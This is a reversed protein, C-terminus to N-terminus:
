TAGARPRTAKTAATRRIERAPPAARPAGFARKVFTRRAMGTGKTADSGAAPPAATKDTAAHTTGSCMARDAHAAITVWTPAHDSPSPQDRVWRDVGADLLGPALEDSLLLHDIRLGADRPWHQRFSDWYTYVREDPYRTRLADTWRQDLLRQYAARGEPQLLAVKRWNRPDYIDADTPVVNDDGALVAPVRAAQLTCAHDILRAPSQREAPVPM